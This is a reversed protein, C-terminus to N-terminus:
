VGTLFTVRNHNTHALIFTIGSREWRATTGNYHAGVATILEDQGYSSWINHDGYSSVKFYQSQESSINNHYGPSAYFSSKPWIQVGEGGEYWMQVWVVWCVGVCCAPLWREIWKVKLILKNEESKM